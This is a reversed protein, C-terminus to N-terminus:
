RDMAELRGHFAMFELDDHHAGVGLHTTRTLAEPLAKQDPVFLRGPIHTELNTAPM